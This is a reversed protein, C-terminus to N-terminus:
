GRGPLIRRLLADGNLWAHKAVATLHLLVFAALAYALVAHCRKLVEALVEGVPVFDPLPFRGLFVIPFGAASSYAWGVLPVAICLAYLAVHAARYVRKQWEPMTREVALPLPPPRHTVRWGFRILSLALVAIGTWKHWNYLKLQTPSFTLDTMYVGLGIMCILLPALLWHLAIAVGSYRIAPSM